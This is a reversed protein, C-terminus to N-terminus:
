SDDKEDMDDHLPLSGFRGDRDRFSHGMYRGADEEVHRAEFITANKRSLERELPDEFTFGRNVGGQSKTPLTLISFRSESNETVPCEGSIRGNIVPIFPMNNRPKPRLPRTITPASAARNKHTRRKKKRKNAPKAPAVVIVSKLAQLQEALATNAVKPKSSQAPKSKAKSAPPAKGAQPKATGAQSPTKAQHKDNAPSARKALSDRVFQPNKPNTGKAKYIKVSRRKEEERALRAACAQKQFPSPVTFTLAIASQQSDVFGSGGCMPCNPSHIAGGDCRSCLEM